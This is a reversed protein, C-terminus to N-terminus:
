CLPVPATTDCVQYTFRTRATSTPTRRTTSRPRRGGLRDRQEAPERRGTIVADLNGNLDTDNALVDIDVPTDEDTTASDDVADPATPAYTATLALLNPEEASTPTTTTPRGPCTTSSVPSM